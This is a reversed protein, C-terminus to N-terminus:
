QKLRKRIEEACKKYEHIMVTRHFEIWNAIGENEANRGALWGAM